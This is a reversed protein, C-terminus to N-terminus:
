ATEMIACGIGSKGFGDGNHFMIKRGDAAIVSPYSMTAANWGEGSPQLGEPDPQRTWDRGDTSTAYGIRYSGAGDRYARSNRYSFWMEYGGDPTRLVSPRTNAELTDLKPICAHNTQRWRLGDDSHALKIQYTPEFKGDIEVWGTGSGYWMTWVGDEILINPAMTMYPEDPTRDVVPGDFAREFTLGGDRSRALGISMRYPVSDGRSVGGYYMWLADGVTIVQSAIVGDEDHTGPKGLDMVPRDHVHLLRTPDARDVEIFGTRSRNEANRTGFYVRIRDDMLVAAPAQAHTRSWDMSGDPAFIVGLQTWGTTM